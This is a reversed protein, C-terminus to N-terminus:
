IRVAIDGGRGRRFCFSTARDEPDDGVGVQRGELDEKPYAHPSAIQLGSQSRHVRRLPDWPTLRAPM